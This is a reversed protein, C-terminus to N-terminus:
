KFLSLDLSESRLRACPVVPNTADYFKFVNLQLADIKTNQCIVKSLTMNRLAVLQEETFAIASDDTDFFYKDAYKARSFQIALLCRGTPGLVGTDAPEYVIGTFLDIDNVSRYVKGLQSAYPGLAETDNFGYLPRLGCFHRWKTYPPLGHDRGRQINLSVLDLGKGPSTSNPEFLHLSIDEVFNRDVKQAAREKYKTLGVLGLLFSDMDDLVVAPRNFLERLPIIRNGVVYASPVTSHGFRFAAASFANFIRPDTDRSYVTRGETSVLRFRFADTGLILPLYHNYTIIQQMAGLIKRAQHFIEEKDTQPKLTHLERAVRNHERLWLVHLATLAPNEHTRLDGTRFCYDSTNPRKICGGLDPSEPPFDGKTRMLYDDKERLLAARESTSGYIMSGDIFANLSNVQERPQLPLGKSDTAALSRVFEMCRGRFYTETEPLTIPYCDKYTNAGPAGGDPGCCKTSNTRNSATVIATMDHDVWQGWQVLMHTLDDQSTEPPHVGSSVLRPSPLPSGDEGKSRPTNLGDDYEPPLLRSVPTFAAGLNRPHNCTGDFTRYKSKRYDPCWDKFNQAFVHGSGAVSGTVAAGHKEAVNYFVGTDRQGQCDEQDPVSGTVNSTQESVKSVNYSIAEEVNTAQNQLPVSIFSPQQINNSSINERSRFIPPGFQQVPIFSSNTTVRSPFTRPGFPQMPVFMPQGQNNMFQNWQFDAPRRMFVQFHGFQQCVAGTCATTSLVLIKLLTRLFHM